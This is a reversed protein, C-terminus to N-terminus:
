DNDKGKAQHEFWFIVPERTEEIMGFRLATRFNVSSKIGRCVQKEIESRFGEISMTAKFLNCPACAPVINKINDNQPESMKQGGVIKKIEAREEETYQWPNSKASPSPTFRLVPKVHDAHWGKEGLLCGCYWCHGKSKDWVEQRQRKNLAV